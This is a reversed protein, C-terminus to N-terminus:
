FLRSNVILYYFIGFNMILVCIDLEFVWPLHHIFIVLPSYLHALVNEFSIAPIQRPFSIEFHQALYRIRVHLQLLNFIPTRRQKIFVIHLLIIGIWM